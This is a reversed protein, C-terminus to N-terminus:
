IRDGWNASSRSRKERGCETSRVRLPAAEAQALPTVASNASIGISFAAKLFSQRSIGKKESKM